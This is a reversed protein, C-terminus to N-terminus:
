LQGSRDWSSLLVQYEPDDYRELEFWPAYAPLEASTLHKALLEGCAPAAMLGFGSLAGIVWAGEVPLPGVLPRNEETKTYYGGDIYPKPPREFYAELAPVMRAIGRLAIEPYTPDFTIPFTPQVRDMHYTWLLLVIPSDDPGEPRAHVGEPFEDLMYRMDEEGELFRREEDTWMIRQPDSWILLPADRPFLGLHDHFSIKTHLESYLPLDIGLMRAGSKLLPGAALVYNNTAIKHKHEGIAIEVSQVRGHNIETDIIRGEILTVGAGRARSLMYAGLQQASFWGARRAHIVTLVDESLYSFHKHLLTTDTFLDAGDPERAYTNLQAPAYVSAPTDHIRLEGAGLSAAEGGHARYDDVKNTDASAFLYGRRNMHFIDGSEAALEELIDISRNMMRVMGDGPGPWWNRYCETSKDSTLSMPTREDVLVVDQVGCKVSLHYAASIGAIGAGCIVVDAHKPYM